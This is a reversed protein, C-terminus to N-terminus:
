NGARESFLGKHLALCSHVFILSILRETALPCLVRLILASDVRVSNIASVEFSNIGM